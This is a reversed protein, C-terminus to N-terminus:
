RCNYRGAIGRIEKDFYQIGVLCLYGDHVARDHDLIHVVLESLLLNHFRALCDNNFTISLWGPDHSCRSVNRLCNTCRVVIGPVKGSRTGPQM